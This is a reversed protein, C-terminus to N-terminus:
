IIEFAWVRLENSNKIWCGIDEIKLKIKVNGESSIRSGFSFPIKPDLNCRWNQYIRKKDYFITKNYTGRGFQDQRRYAYLYTSDFKLNYKKAYVKALKLKQQFSLINHHSKLQTEMYITSEYNDIFRKSLIQNYFIERWYIKNHFEKIFNESLEQNCSVGRWDIKDKFEIIFPISLKQNYSIEKWHVKNQFKRIFDESLKQNYSIECWDIWNQFEIIFSESLKQQRSIIYWNVDDLNKIIGNAPYTM